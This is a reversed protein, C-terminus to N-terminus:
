KAPPESSWEDDQSPEDSWGNDDGWDDDAAASPKAPPHGDYIMFERQQRWAERTFIYPDLALEDRMSSADLLRARLDIYKLLTLPITVEPKLILSAWFLVDTATSTAFDPTKRASNPGLFPYVTYAGQPM